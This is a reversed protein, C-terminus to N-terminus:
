NTATTRATRGSQALDILSAEWTPIQVGQLRTRRGLPYHEGPQQVARGAGAFQALFIAPGKMQAM